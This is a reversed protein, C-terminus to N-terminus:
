LIKKVSERIILETGVQIKIPVPYKMLVMDVLMKVAMEGMAEKFVRMTTLTPTSVESYPMDDMGIISVQEPIRIGNEQMAKMAGIAIEDNDAFFATPLEPASELYELM